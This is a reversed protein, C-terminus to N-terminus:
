FMWGIGAEIELYKFNITTVGAKITFGYVSAIIGGNVTIGQASTPAYEAWDHNGLEWLMRRWGYGAGVYMGFTNFRNRPSGGGLEIFDMVLGANAVLHSTKKSGTYFPLTGDIYGGEGCSLGNTANDFRFNSRANIYWGVGKYTQGLSFGYSMQPAFAYGFEGTIFTEINSKGGQPKGKRNKPLIYQEYTGLAEVRFRVNDAVFGDNEDLPHWVIELNSGAHVRKGVAGEVATLPIYNPDNGVSVFARVNSTKSLDYTIIIDKNRQRVRVNTANEAM